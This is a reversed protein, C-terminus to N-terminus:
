NDENVKRFIDNPFMANILDSCEQQREPLSEDGGYIAIRMQVEEDFENWDVQMEFNQNSKQLTKTAQLKGLQYQMKLDTWGHAKLVSLLEDILDDADVLFNRTVSAATSTSEESM